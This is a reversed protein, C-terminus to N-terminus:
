AVKVGRGGATIPGGARDRPRPPEKERGGRNEIRSSPPDVEAVTGAPEDTGKTSIGYSGRSM